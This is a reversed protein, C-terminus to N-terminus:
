AAAGVAAASKHPVFLGYGFRRGAGIGHAQLVLSHSPTLHDVMLGYGRLEGAAGRRPLGCIARGAIGLAGLETQVADLFALEDGAPAAVCHSFLTGWPLLERRLAGGLRLWGDGVPLERGALAEADAARERPVRLVLRTRQSLLLEGGGGGSSAKVPHLGVLPATALWPLAAEVADALARRHERPLRGATVAFAIDVVAATEDDAMPM